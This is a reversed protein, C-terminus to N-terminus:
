LAQLPVAQRPDQLTLFAHIIAQRKDLHFGRAAGFLARLADGAELFHGPRVRRRWQDFVPGDGPFIDAMIDADRAELRAIHGCWGTLIDEILGFAADNGRGLKDALDHVRLMDLDPLNEAVALLQKYLDVGGDAHFSLARGISGEAVRVLMDKEQPSLGQIQRDVLDAVTKDSLPHLHFLRCRSRTTPLLRGPQTTTLILLARPPPEELIKLLANQSFVNLDEAGDVIVVRWGGEGATKRMFPTIQRADEASISTKMRGKKDDFGREIVLLDAHGGSAVRRFVADKEPVSLDHPATEAGFLGAAGSGAAGGQALVFRALRYALTAKGIGEPGALIMAHPLRGSQWAELLAKETEEHGALAAQQRPSLIAAPAAADVLREVAGSGEADDAFAMADLDSEELDDFLGSM